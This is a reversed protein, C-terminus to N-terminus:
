NQRPRNIPVASKQLVRGVEEIRTQEPLRKRARFNRAREESRFPGTVVIFRTPETATAKLMVVRASGLENQVRLLRQAQQATEFIGHELLLSDKPLTKLWRLGLQAVEPMPPPPPPTQPSSRLGSAVEPQLGSRELVRGTDAPPPSMAAQGPLPAGQIPLPAENMPPSLAPNLTADSASEVTQVSATNPGISGYGQPRTQNPAPHPPAQQATTRQPTGTKDQTTNHLLLWVGLGLLVVLGLGWLEVSSSRLSKAVGVLAPTLPEPRLALARAPSPTTWQLWRDSAKDLLAQKEPPMPLAVNFLLVWRIKWGPFHENLRLLLLLEDESFCEADHVFWISHPEPIPVSQMAQQLGQQTLGENIRGLLGAPQHGSFHSMAMQPAHAQWHAQLAESVAILAPADHRWVMLGRGDQMVAHAWKTLDSETQLTPEIRAPELVSSRLLM